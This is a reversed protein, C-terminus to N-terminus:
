KWILCHTSSKEYSSTLLLKWKRPVCTWQQRSFIRTKTNQKTKQWRFRNPEEGVKLTKQSLEHNRNHGKIANHSTLHLSLSVIFPRVRPKHPTPNKSISPNKLRPYQQPQKLGSPKKQRPLQHREQPKSTDKEKSSSQQPPTNPCLKKSQGEGSDRRQKLNVATEMPEEIQQTKSTKSPTTQSSSSVKPVTSSSVGVSLTPRTGPPSTQSPDEPKKKAGTRRGRGHFKPGCGQYHQWSHCGTCVLPQVYGDSYPSVHAIEELLGDLGPSKNLGVQKLADRVEYETVVGECSAAEVEGFRPFDALYNRFEQVPLNPCRAFRDRFHAQFAKRMERNSRLM